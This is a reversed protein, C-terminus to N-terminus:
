PKPISRSVTLAEDLAEPDLQYGMSVAHATSEADIISPTQIISLVPRPDAFENLQKLVRLAEEAAASSKYSILREPTPYPYDPDSYDASLEFLIVPIPILAM